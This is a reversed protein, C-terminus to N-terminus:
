RRARRLQAPLEYIYHLLQRTLKALDEAEADDVDDMPDYHAGVNATLRVEAAWSALNADLAHEDAMVRLGAALNRDLATQAAASGSERVLGEVTRRLMVAAARPARASLARMAEAYSDRLGEPIADDLDASSPPPWWHVGRYNVRGGTGIGERAAHNGIWKEEVVVTAQKCGSCLLSSVQDLDEPIMRGDRDETYTDGFSVPLSGLVSFNSARGCRPCPGSPDSSDPPTDPNSAPVSEGREGHRRPSGFPFGMSGAYLLADTRIEVKVVTSPGVFVASSQIFTL